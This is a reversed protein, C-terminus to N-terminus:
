FCTPPQPDARSTPTTQVDSWPRVSPSLRAIRGTSKRRRKREMTKYNQPSHPHTHVAGQMTGDGLSRSPRDKRYEEHKRTFEAVRTQRLILVGPRTLCPLDPQATLTRVSLNVPQRTGVYPPPPCLGAGKSWYREAPRSSGQGPRPLSESSHM